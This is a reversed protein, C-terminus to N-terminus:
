AIVFLGIAVVIYIGVKGINVNLSVSDATLTFEMNKMKRAHRM